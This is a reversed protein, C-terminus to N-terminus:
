DPKSCKSLLIKLDDQDLCFMRDFKPEICQVAEGDQTRYVAASQSDAKYIKLTKDYTVCSTLLASLTPLIWLRIQM